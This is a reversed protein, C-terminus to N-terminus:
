DNLYLPKCLKEPKKPPFTYDHKKRRNEYAFGRKEDRRTPLPRYSFREGEWDVASDM